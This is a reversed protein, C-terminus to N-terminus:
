VTAGLDIWEKSDGNKEDRKWTMSISPTGLDCPPLSRDVVYSRAGPEYGKLFSGTRAIVIKQQSLKAKGQAVRLRLMSKTAVTRRHDHGCLYIDATAVSQMDEVRKLSGGSFRAAGLGHHAFITLGQTSNRKSALRFSLYIFANSGLYRCGLTECMRQTSTTGNPFESYHNGELLGILRNEKAMFSIEKSLRDTFKKYLNELTDKTSEHLYRSSLIDRESTSALDDYDGMGLFYVNKQKRWHALWELWLREHCMPSHRHIDGFPVLTIPANVKVNPIEHYHVTFIGTSNM